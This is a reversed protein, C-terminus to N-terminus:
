LLIISQINDFV